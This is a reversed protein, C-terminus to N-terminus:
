RGGVKDKDANAKRESVRRLAFRCALTYDDFSLGSQEEFKNLLDVIQEVASWLRAEPKAM